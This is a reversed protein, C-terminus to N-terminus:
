EKGVEFFRNCNNCRYVLGRYQVGPVDCKPCFRRSSYLGAEELAKRWDDLFKDFDNGFVKELIDVLNQDGEIERKSKIDAPFYGKGETIGLFYEHRKKEIGWGSGKYVEYRIGCKGCKYINNRKRCGANHCKPCLNLGTLRGAKRIANRWDALFKKLSGKFQRRLMHSLRAMGNLARKSKIDGPFLERDNTIRVFYKGRIEEDDWSKAPVENMDFVEIKFKKTYGAEKLADYPHGCKRALGQLRNDYFDQLIISCIEKRTPNWAEKAIRWGVLWKIARIQLKVGKGDTKEWQMKQFLIWPAYYDSSEDLFPIYWESDEDSCAEKYTKHAGNKKIATPFFDRKNPLYGGEKIIWDELFRIVGPNKWQADKKKAESLMVKLHPREKNLIDYIFENRQEIPWASNGM